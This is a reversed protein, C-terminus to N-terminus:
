AMDKTLTWTLHNGDWDSVTPIHHMITPFTFFTILNEVGM